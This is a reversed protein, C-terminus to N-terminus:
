RRREGENRQPKFGHLKGRLSTGSKVFLRCIIDSSCLSAALSNPKFACIQRYQPLLEPGRKASLIHYEEDMAPTLFSSVILPPRLAIPALTIEAGVHSCFDTEEAIAHRWCPRCSMLDIGGVPRQDVLM